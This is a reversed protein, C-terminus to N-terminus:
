EACKALAIDEPSFVLRDFADRINAGLHYLGHIHGYYFHGDNGSWIICASPVYGVPFLDVQIQSKWDLARDLEGSADFPDFVISSSAIRGGIAPTVITMGGLSELVDLAAANPIYGESMLQDLWDKTSVKRFPKWGSETLIAHFEASIQQPTIM